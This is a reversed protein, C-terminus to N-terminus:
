ESSREYEIYNNNWFNGVRTPKHYDDDQEFLTRIDRIIRDKIAENEKKLIFLNRISKIINEESQKKGGGYVTKVRKPKSYDNTKFLIM